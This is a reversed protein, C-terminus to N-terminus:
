AEGEEDLFDLELFDLKKEIPTGVFTFKMVIDKMQKNVSQGDLYKTVSNLSKVVEHMLEIEENQKDQIMKRKLREKQLGIRLKRVSDDLAASIM